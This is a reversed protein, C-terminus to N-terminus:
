RLATPIVARLEDPTRAAEIAPDATVDRLAQKQQAIQQKLLLDGTEDARMYEVDLAALKPDRLNRLHQRHIDRAKPMEVLMRGRGNMAWANRYKRDIDPPTWDDPLRTLTVTGGVNSREIVHAEYQEQTLEGLVRELSEKPAANVIHLRGDPTTYAFRLSM